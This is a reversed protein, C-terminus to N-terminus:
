EDVMQHRLDTVKEKLKELEDMNRVRGLALGLRGLLHILQRSDVTKKNKMEHVIEVFFDFDTKTTTFKAGVSDQLHTGRRGGQLAEQVVALLQERVFAGQLFACRNYIPKPVQEPPRLAYAILPIARARGLVWKLLKGENELASVQCLLLDYKRSTRLVRLIAKHEWVGDCHYDQSQLVSTFLEGIPEDSTIVLIRKPRNSTTM